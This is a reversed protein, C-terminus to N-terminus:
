SQSGLGPPPSLIEIQRTSTSRGRQHAYLVESDSEDDDSDDDSDDEPLESFDQSPSSPRLWRRYYRGLAAKLEVGMGFYEVNRVFGEWSINGRHFCEDIYDFTGFYMYHVLHPFSASDPVPLFFVPHHTTSSQLVRPRRSPHVPFAGASLHSKASSCPSASSSSTSSSDVLPPTPLADTDDFPSYGSLVARLFTSSAALYQQHLKLVLRRNKVRANNSVPVTRSQCAFPGTKLPDPSPAAPVNPLVPDLPIIFTCDASEPKHWYTSAVRRLQSAIYAEPIDKLAPPPFPKPVFPLSKNSSTNPKSPSEMSPPSYSLASEVPITVGLIM